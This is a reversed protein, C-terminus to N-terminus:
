NVFAGALTGKKNYASQDFIYLAYGLQEYGFPQRFNAPCDLTACAVFVGPVGFWKRKCGSPISSVRIM